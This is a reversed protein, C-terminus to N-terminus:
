LFYGKGGGLLQLVHCSVGQLVLEDEQVGNAADLAVPCVRDHGDTM